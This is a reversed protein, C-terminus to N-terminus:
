CFFQIWSNPSVRSHLCGPLHAVLVCLALLAFWTELQDCLPLTAYSSMLFLDHLNRYNFKLLDEMTLVTYKWRALQRLQQQEKQTGLMTKENYRKFRSVQCDQWFSKHLNWVLCGIKFWFKSKTPEQDSHSKDLTKNNGNTTKSIADGMHHSFMSETYVYSRPNM